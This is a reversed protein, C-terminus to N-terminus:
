HLLIMQFHRLADEIAKEKEKPCKPQRADESKSLNYNERKELGHKDKVQAIYLNSVKLGTEELVYKKIEEYTAKSEASTIDMEDMDLKVNVHHKAEHLKSLLCVTEVHKTFPFLDFPTCEKMRYGHKTLYKLDRALTEPGCSVYVVKDPALRVVSSLFAEDSGTRPPDMIVVDARKGKEAMEVM